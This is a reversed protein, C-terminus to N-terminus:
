IISYKSCRNLHGENFEQPSRVDLLMTDQNTELINKLEDTSIDKCTRYNGIRKIFSYMCDGKYLKFFEM